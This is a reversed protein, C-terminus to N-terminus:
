YNCIYSDFKLSKKNTFRHAPNPNVYLSLPLANDSDKLFSFLYRVITFTSVIFQNEVNWILTAQVFKARIISILFFASNDDYSSLRLFFQQIFFVTYVFM